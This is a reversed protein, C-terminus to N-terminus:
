LFYKSDYFTCTQTVWTNRRQGGGSFFIAFLFDALMGAYIVSKQKKVRM